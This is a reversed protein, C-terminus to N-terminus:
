SKALHDSKYVMRIPPPVGYKNNNNNLQETTDLKKTNSDKSGQQGPGALKSIGVSFVPNPPQNSAGPCAAGEYRQYCRLSTKQGQPEDPGSLALTM